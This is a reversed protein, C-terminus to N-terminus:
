PAPQVCQGAGVDCVADGPNACDVQPCPEDLSWQYCRLSWIQQHYTCQESTMPVFQCAPCYCAAEASPATPYNCQVCDEDAGCLPPEYDWACVGVTTDCVVPPPQECQIDACSTSFTACVAQWAERNFSCRAESMPTTGCDPCYCENEMAPANPYACAQCEGDTACNDPPPPIVDVVADAVADADAVAADTRGSDGVFADVVDPVATVDTTSGTGPEQSLCGSLGVALATLSVRTRM